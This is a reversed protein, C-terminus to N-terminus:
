SLMGMASQFVQDVSIADMAKRCHECPNMSGCAEDGIFLNAHGDYGTVRPPIFGGFLVVAKIGVAAAGHHLGGEPGIYLAARSLAALVHRFSQPSIQEVGSLSVGDKRHHFQAVRRGSAILQDAVQQYRSAEWRKNVAWPKHAPVNPEILVFDDGCEDAFALERDDFFMEGPTARFELNWIWRTASARNYGRHGHYHDCWEIDKAGHTGPPAINPNGRFIAECHPGWIIRKGDGFAIRKGRAKAGRAIGTAMIEDGFGM